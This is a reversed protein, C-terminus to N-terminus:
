GQDTWPVSNTLKGEEADIWDLYAMFWFPWVLVHLVILLPHFTTFLLFWWRTAWEHDKPEWLMGRPLLRNPPKPRRSLLFCIVAFGVIFYSGLAAVVIIELINGFTITKV